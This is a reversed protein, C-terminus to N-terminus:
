EIQVSGCRTRLGEVLEAEVLEAEVLEAEVLEAEVLEAEVLEAEVLEASAPPKLRKGTTSASRITAHKGARWPTLHLV